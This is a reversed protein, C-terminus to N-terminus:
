VRHHQFQAELLCKVTLVIDTQIRPHRFSSCQSACAACVTPYDAQSHLSASTSCRKDASDMHLHTSLSPQYTKSLLMALSIVPRTPTIAPTWETEGSGAVVRPGALGTGAM